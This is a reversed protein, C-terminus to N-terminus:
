GGEGSEERFFMGRDESKKRSGLNRRHRNILEKLQPGKEKTAEKDGVGPCDRCCGGYWGQHCGVDGSQKDDWGLQRVLECEKNMFSERIKVDQLGSVAFRKRTM